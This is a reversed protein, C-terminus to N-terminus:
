MLVRTIINPNIMFRTWMAAGFRPAIVRANKKCVFIIMMSECCVIITELLAHLRHLIYSILLL